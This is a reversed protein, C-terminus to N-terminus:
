WASQLSERSAADYVEPFAVRKLTLRGLAEHVHKALALTARKARASADSAPPVPYAAVLANRAAVSAKKLRTGIKEITTVSIRTLGNNWPGRAHPAVAAVSPPTGCTALAQVARIRLVNPNLSGKPENVVAELASAAREDGLKMLAECVVYRLLDNPVALLTKARSLLEVPKGAAIVEVARYRVVIDTDTELAELAEGVDQRSEIRAARKEAAAIASAGELMGVEGVKAGAFSSLFAAISRGPTAVRKLTIPHLLHHQPYSSYGLRLAVREAKRDAESGSFDRFVYLWVAKEYIPKLESQGLVEKELKVCHPCYTKTLYVFIPVGRELAIRQADALDRVWTPGKPPTESGAEAPPPAVLFLALLLPLARM